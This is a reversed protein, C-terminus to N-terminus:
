ELKNYYWYYYNLVKKKVEKLNYTNPDQHKGNATAIEITYIDNKLHVPVVIILNDWCKSVVDDLKMNTLALNLM